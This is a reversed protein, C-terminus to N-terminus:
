CQTLYWHLNTALSTVTGYSDIYNCLGFAFTWLKGTKTNAEFGWFSKKVEPFFVFEKVFIGRVNGRLYFFSSCCFIYLSKAINTKGRMFARITFPTEKHSFISWKFLKLFSTLKATQKISRWWWGRDLMSLSFGLWHKKHTHESGWITFRALFPFLSKVVVLVRISANPIISM